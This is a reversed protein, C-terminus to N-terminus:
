AAEITIAVLETRVKMRSADVLGSHGTSEEIWRAAHSSVFFKEGDHLHSASSSTRLEDESELSNFGLSTKTHM